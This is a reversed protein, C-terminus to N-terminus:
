PQDFRGIAHLVMVGDETLLERSKEFYENYHGVGVHEFMGVSIIRDFQTKLSRYDQLLFRARDAMNQSTARANSVKHQEESLTVGTVDVDANNAIYLGLGGWGSGIDLVKQGPALALKAALHRKKALQAEE